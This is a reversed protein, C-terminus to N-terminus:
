VFLKTQSIWTVCIALTQTNKKLNPLQRLNKADTGPFWTLDRAWSHHPFATRLIIVSCILFLRLYTKWISDALLHCSVLSILPPRRITTTLIWCLSRCLPDLNRMENSKWWDLHNNIDITAQNLLSIDQCCVKNNISIKLEARYLVRPDM